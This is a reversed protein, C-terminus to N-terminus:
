LKSYQTMIFHFLRVSCNVLRGVLYVQLKRYMVNTLCLYVSLFDNILTLM